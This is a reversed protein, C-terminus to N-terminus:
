WLQPLYFFSEDNFRKYLENVLSDIIGQEDKTHFYYNLYHMDIYESHFLNYLSGNDEKTKESKNSLLTINNKALSKMLAKVSEVEKLSPEKANQFISVSKRQQFIVKYDVDENYINKTIVSKLSSWKENKNM